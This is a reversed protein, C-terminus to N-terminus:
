FFLVKSYVQCENFHCFPVNCVEDVVVASAIRGNTIKRESFFNSLLIDRQFSSLDGYIVDSNYRLRRKNEDESCEADCNNTVVIGFMDFFWKMETANAEALVSSSTIIDVFRRGNSWNDLVHYVVLLATILTKGEGTSIQAMRRQFQPGDDTTPSIFILVALLQADRLGYKEKLQVARFAVSLFDVPDMRKSKSDKKQNEIWEKIKKDDWSKREELALRRIKMMQDILKQQLSGVIACSGEDNKMVDTLQKPDLDAKSDTKKENEILERNQIFKWLHDDFVNEENALTFFKDVIWPYKSLNRLMDQLIKEPSRGSSSTNESLGYKSHFRQLFRDTKDHGLRRDLITTLQDTLSSPWADALRAHQILRAWKRLPTERFRGIDDIRQLVKLDAVIGTLFSLDIPPNSTPNLRSEHELKRLFINLVARGNQQHTKLCSQLDTKLLRLQDLSGANTASPKRDLQDIVNMISNVLADDLWRHPRSKTTWSFLQKPTFEISTSLIETVLALGVQDRTSVISRLVTEQLWILWEFEVGQRKAFFHARSFAQRFEVICKRKDSPDTSVIPKTKQLLDKQEADLEPYFYRLFGLYIKQVAREKLVHMYSLPQQTRLLEEAVDRGVIGIYNKEESTLMLDFDASSFLRNEQTKVAETQNSKNVADIQGFFDQIHDESQFCSKTQLWREVYSKELPTFVPEKEQDSYLIQCIAKKRLDYNKNVGKKNGNYLRDIYQSIFLSPNLEDVNADMAKALLVLSDFILLNAQVESQDLFNAVIGLQNILEKFQFEISKKVKKQQLRRRLFETLHLILFTQVTSLRKFIDRDSEVQPWTSIITAILGSWRVLLVLDECPKVYHDLLQAAITLRIKLLSPSSATLLAEV